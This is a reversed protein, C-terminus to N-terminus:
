LYIMTRVASTAMCKLSGRGSEGTEGEASYMSGIQKLRSRTSDHLVNPHNEKDERREIAPRRPSASKEAATHASPSRFLYVTVPRVYSM